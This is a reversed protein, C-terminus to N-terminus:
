AATLQYSDYIERYTQPEPINLERRLEDLPRGLHAEWDQGPLWAAKKGARWAQWMAKRVGPGLEKSIKHMGMLAIIGLGRNKTQAYTFALLCAEGFTDRGFGTLVHWLDHQDRMREGFRRLDPDWTAEDNNSAEVLGDASINETEVFNLYARALTEPSQSRLAERDNLTTVLDREEALIRRGQPMCVFRRFSRELSDGAMARIIVFVQDTKEPDTILKRLARWAVLPQMRNSKSSM